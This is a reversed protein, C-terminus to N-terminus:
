GRDCPLSSKRLGILSSTWCPHKFTVAIRRWRIVGDAELSPGTEVIGAFEDLQDATLRRYRPARRDLLGDPGEENFRHVWDRLTQRDMGGARAAESRSKGDYVCALALLRRTQRPDKTRRALRRLTAADYDGRLPVTYSM